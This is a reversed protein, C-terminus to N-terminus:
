PKVSFLVYIIFLLGIGFLQWFYEFCLLFLLKLIFNSGENAGSVSLIM